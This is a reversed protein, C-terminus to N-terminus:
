ALLIFTCLGYSKAYSLEFVPAPQWYSDSLQLAVTSLIDHKCLKFLGFHCFGCAM